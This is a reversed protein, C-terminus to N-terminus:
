FIFYFLKANSPTSIPRTFKTSDQRSVNRNIPFSELTFRRLPVVFYFSELQYDIVHSLTKDKFMTVLVTKDHEYKPTLNELM